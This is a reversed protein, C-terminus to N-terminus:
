LALPSGGLAQWLLVRARQARGLAAAARDGSADAVRRAELVTLFNDLGARYRTDALNAARTAMEAEELTAAAEADAAAVLAYASEVEGFATFLAGRYQQFALRTQAEGADIEAEIRGFDLLPGALGATANAVVSDADFIDGMAFALLGIGASLSIRPFRQAATAALDADAAQLRFAAAQIDPRSAVLVSPLSPPPPALMDAEDELELAAVVDGAPLATLAVLRGLLEARASDLAALRSRSAAAQTEARFRDFGPAIGAEERTGALDALRTAANLDSRLAAERAQLTRWDTVAGAIDATLALRVAAADADAADIRLLAAREANRLRGFIDPDWRATLNASYAVQETELPLNDPANINTRSGQVGADYGLSPLREAGARAASARAIDLRAIAQGLTPNQALATEALAAFAPDDPLLAAVQAEDAPTAEPAFLFSEPVAADSATPVAEPGAICATLSLALAPTLLARRM